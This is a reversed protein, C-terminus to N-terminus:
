AQDEAGVFEEALRADPLGYPCPMGRGCAWGTCGIWKKRMHRQTKEEGEVAVLGTMGLPAARKKKAVAFRHDRPASLFRCKMGM